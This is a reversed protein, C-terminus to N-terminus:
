LSVSFQNKIGTILQTDAPEATQVRVKTFSFSVFYQWNNQIGAVYGFQGLTISKKAHPPRYGLLRACAKEYLDFIGLEGRRERARFFLEGSVTEQQAVVSLNERDEFVAGHLIVYIIPQLTPRAANLASVDPLTKVEVGPMELRKVIDDEYDDYTM